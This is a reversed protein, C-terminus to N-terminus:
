YGALTPSAPLGDADATQGISGTQAPAHRRMLGQIRRKLDSAVFGASPLESKDGKAVALDHLSRTMNAFGPRYGCAMMEKFANDFTWNEIMIRYAGTMTGTRDRGQLCHLYVPGNEANSVTSLFRHFQKNYPTDFAYMPIHVFKMGLSEVTKRELEAIQPEEARLDIVTMVGAKKLLNLGADTPQGGRLLRGSVMRLNPIDNPYRALSQLVPVTLDNQNRAPLQSIPMSLDNRKRSPSRELPASLDNPKQVGSSELPASLDKRKRAPSQVIPASLDNSKSTESPVTPVALDNPSGSSSQVVPVPLGNSVDSKQQNSNAFLSRPQQSKFSSAKNYVSFSPPDPESQPKSLNLHFATAPLIASISILVSLILLKVGLDLSSCRQTQATRRFM